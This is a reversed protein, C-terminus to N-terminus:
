SATFELLTDFLEQEWHLAYFSHNSGEVTAFTAHLGNDRCFTEFHTRAGVGEPDASGWVFLLRGTYDAIAGMLDRASDKLNRTQGERTKVTGGEGGFLTKFVRLFRVEGTFLRKWTSLRLAKGLVKTFMGGTRRFSQMASKHSQFPLVSLAAVRDYAGGHAAAALAVNAGSCLGIATVDSVRAEERLFAAAEIADDVMTDLDTEAFTGASEGRGTFDFRVTPIGRAALARALKTLIDHPGCRYTGWGHMLVAARAASGDSAQRTLIGPLEGRSSRIRVVSEQIDPMVMAETRM